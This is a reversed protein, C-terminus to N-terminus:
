YMGRIGVPGGYTGFLWIPRGGAPDNAVFDRRRADYGTVIVFHQGGNRRVETIVPLGYSLYSHLVGSAEQASRFDRRQFRMGILRAGVDWNLLTQNAFGGARKLAFNAAAPTYTMQADYSVLMAYCTVACGQQGITVRSSYGLLERNWATNGQNFAPVGLQISSQAMSESALGPLLIAALACAAASRRLSGQITAMGVAVRVRSVPVIFGPM